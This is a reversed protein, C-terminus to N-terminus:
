ALKEKKDGGKGSDDLGIAGPAQANMEENKGKGAAKEKKPPPIRLKVKADAVPKGDPDLITGTVTGTSTADQAHAQLHTWPAVLGLTVALVFSWKVQNQM